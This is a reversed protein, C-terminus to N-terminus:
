PLDVPNLDPTVQEAADSAVDHLVGRRPLAGIRVAGTGDHRVLQTVSRGSPERIPSPSTTSAIIWSPSHDVNVPWCM